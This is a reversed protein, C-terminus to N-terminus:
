YTVDDRNYPWCTALVAKVHASACNQATNTDGSFRAAALRIFGPLGWLSQGCLVDGYLLRFRTNLQWCAADNQKLWGTHTALAAADLFCGACLVELSHRLLM